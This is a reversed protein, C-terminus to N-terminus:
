NKFFTLQKNPNSFNNSCMIIIQIEYGKSICSVIPPMDLGMM